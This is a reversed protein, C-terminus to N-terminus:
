RLKRTKGGVPTFNLLKSPLLPGDRQTYKYRTKKMISKMVDNDHRTFYNMSGIGVILSLSVTIILTTTNFINNYEVMSYKSLFYNIDL